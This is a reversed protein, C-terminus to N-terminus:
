LMEPTRFRTSFPVSPLWHMNSEFRIHCNKGSAKAQYLAIDAKQLLDSSQAGGPHMAIGISTSVHADGKALHIPSRLSALLREAIGTVEIGALDELLVTFEDGGFRALTDCDRLEHQLRQAVVALLEDGAAHGLSDNIMKFGDLDLFLVALPNGSHQSRARAQALRDVFLARNPLGTLSDHFAQFRLQEELAARESNDRIIGLMVGEALMTASVEVTIQSTDKRLMRRESRVTAGVPLGQMNLPRQTLNDAVILERLERNLLEEPAYGLITGASPNAEVIAGRADVLIIGDAAQEMIRRYREESTRLAQEAVKRDTIDMSTGSVRLLTGDAAYMARGKNELWHVSGDSWVSRYSTVSNRGEVESLRM